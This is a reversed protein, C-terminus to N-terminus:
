IVFILNSQLVDRIFTEPLSGTNAPAVFVAFVSVFIASSSTVLLRCPVKAWSIEVALRTRANSM